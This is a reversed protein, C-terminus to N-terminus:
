ACVQKVLDCTQQGVEFCCGDSPSCRGFRQSARISASSDRWSSSM